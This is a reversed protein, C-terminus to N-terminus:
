TGYVRKQLADDSLNRGRGYRGDPEDVEEWAGTTPNVKWCHRTGDDRRCDVNVCVAREVQDSCVTPKTCHQCENWVSDLSGRGGHIMGACRAGVRGLEDRVTEALQPHDNVITYSVSRLWKLADLIREDAGTGAYSDARRRRLQQFGLASRVSNELGLVTVKLGPRWNDPDAGCARHTCSGVEAAEACADCRGCREGTTDRPWTACPPVGAHADPRIGDPGVWYNENLFCLVDLNVPVALGGGSGGAGANSRVGVYKEIEPYDDALQDIVKHLRTLESPSDAVPRLHRAGM